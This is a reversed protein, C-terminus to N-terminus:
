VVSKRDPYRLSGTIVELDTHCLGAAKIRVLVDNRGLGGATVPEVTMPAGISHLVAARYELTMRQEKNAAAAPARPGTCHRPWASGPRMTGSGSPAKSPRPGPVAAGARSLGAQWRRTASISPSRTM